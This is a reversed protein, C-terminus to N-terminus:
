FAISYVPSHRFWGGQFPYFRVNLRNESKSSNISTGKQVDEPIVFKVYFAM